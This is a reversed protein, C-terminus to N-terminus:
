GSLGGAIMGLNKSTGGNAVSSNRHGRILRCISRLIDICRRSDGQIPAVVATAAERLAAGDSFDATITIDGALTGGCALGSGALV